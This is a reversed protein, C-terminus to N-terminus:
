EDIEQLVMTLNATRVWNTGETEYETSFDIIEHLYVGRIKRYDRGSTPKNFQKKLGVTWDLCHDLNGAYCECKAVPSQESDAYFTVTVEAERAWFGIVDAHRPASPCHVIICPLSPPAETSDGKAVIACGKLSGNKKLHNVIATEVNNTTPKRLIRAM